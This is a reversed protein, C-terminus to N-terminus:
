GEPINTDINTDDENGIIRNLKDEFILNKLKEITSYKDHIANEIPLIEETVSSNGSTVFSINCYICVRIRNIYHHQRMTLSPRKCESCTHRKSYVFSMLDDIKYIKNKM